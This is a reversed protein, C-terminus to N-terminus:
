AKAADELSKRIADLEDQHLWVSVLRWPDKYGGCIACEMRDAPAVEVPSAPAPAPPPATQLAVNQRWQRVMDAMVRSSYGTRVAIDLLYRRHSEDECKNLERAVAFSIGRKLLVDFVVPDGRLLRIRDGLYDPSVKFRACLAAEDLNYRERHEQFLIAEEAASLEEHYINEALMAAGSAVEAPQYVMAHITAWGLACACVFRRHGYEIEYRGDKAVIGIPQLLGIQAMSTRLEDLKKDDMAMRAPTDPPDIMSLEIQKIEPM